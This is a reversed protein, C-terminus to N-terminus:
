SVCSCFPQLSFCKRYLVRLAVKKTIVELCKGHPYAAAQFSLHTAHYPDFCRHLRRDQQQSRDHVISYYTATYRNRTRQGKPEM